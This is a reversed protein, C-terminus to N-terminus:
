SRLTARMQEYEERSIEGRVYRSQLIEEPTARTTTTEGRDARPRGSLVGLGGLVAVIVGIILLWFLLMGGGFFMM